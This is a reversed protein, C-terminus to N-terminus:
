KSNAPDNKQPYGYDKNTTDALGDKGKSGRAVADNPIAGEIAERGVNQGLTHVKNADADARVASDGTAPERLADNGKSFSDSLGGSGVNVTSQDASHFDSKVPPQEPLPLNSQRENIVDKKSEGSNDVISQMAAADSGAAVNGSHVNSDKSEMKKVDEKTTHYTQGSM